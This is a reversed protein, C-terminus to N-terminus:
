ETMQMFIMRSTNGPFIFNQLLTKCTKGMIVTDGICHITTYTTSYPFFFPPVSYYWIAGTPAWTNTQSFVNASSFFILLVVLYKRM